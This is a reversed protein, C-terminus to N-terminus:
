QGASEVRNRGQAKAGYLARDVRQLLADPSEGPTYQAVGISITITGYREGNATDRLQGSSVAKRIQEAVSAAGELGTQPLIVAFEEGGFRAALDRGKLTRKLVSAVFRLVKDGVLHGHTDNFRKFHDIDAMLVSFPSREESAVPVIQELAQDFAKRNSIGTLADTLSEERVQELEKKLTDIEQLISAMHDHLQAQSQEVSRTEDLVKKVESAPPVSLNLMEAFLNLTDAYVTLNGGSRRLEGQMDTLFHRLEERMAILTETDQVYFHRYTEWLSEGDIKEDGDDRRFLNELESNIGSAYDYALRYNHPSPPIEHRALTQVALRLYESAKASDHEAYPNQTENM